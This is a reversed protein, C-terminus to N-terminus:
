RDGATHVGDVLVVELVHFVPATTAFEPCKLTSILMSARCSIDSARRWLGVREDFFVGEFVSAADVEEGLAAEDVEGGCFAVRWADHVHAECVLGEGAFEDGFVM